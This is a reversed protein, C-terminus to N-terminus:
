WRRVIIVFYNTLFSIKVESRHGDLQDGGFPVVAVEVEAQVGLPIQLLGPAPILGSGILVGTCAEDVPRVIWVVFKQASVLNM